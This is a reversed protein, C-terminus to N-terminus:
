VNPMNSRFQKQRIMFALVVCIGTWAACSYWVFAPWSKVTLAYVWSIVIPSFIAAISDVMQLAGLVAGFESPEVLNTLLSKLSPSSIICLAHLASALYFMWGSTALGYGIYTISNIAFGLRIMWTDFKMDSFTQEKTRSPTIATTEPSISGEGGSGGTTTTTTTTTTSDYHQRSDKKPIVEDNDDDDDGHYESDRDSVSNLSSSSSAATAAAAFDLAAEGLRQVSAAVSPDNQNFIIQNNMNTNNIIAHDENYNVPYFSSIENDNEHNTTSTTSTSNNNNNNNIRNQPQTPDYLTNSSDYKRLGADTIGDNTIIISSNNNKNDNDSNNNKNKVIHSQKGLRKAEREMKAQQKDQKRKSSKQYFHVLIPLLILLAILRVTSGLAFLIGDEFEGWHFMQNTYLIVVSLTGRVALMQLFSIIALLILNTNRGNPKFFRLSRSAHAHWPIARNLEGSSSSSSSDKPKTPISKDLLDRIFAPQKAPISEPIFFVAFLLSLFTTALDIYVITLITGTIKVLYGGVVSGIAIGLFLGAHLYSYVLSRRAPDTCDAAYALSMTQGINLGGLLGTVLSSVVMLPLGIEDWWQGMAIVSFLMVLNGLCGLIMIHLRGHKDSLSAYYGITLTSAIGGIVEVVAMTKATYALIEPTKCEIAPEMVTALMTVLGSSSTNHSAQHALYSLAELATDTSHRSMYERCLMATQFQGISSVLMGSSISSLGYVPLLWMASPRKYWPLHDQIIKVYIATTDTVPTSSLPPKALLPTQESSSEANSADM